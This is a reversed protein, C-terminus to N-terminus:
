IGLVGQIPQVPVPGRVAQGERGWGTGARIGERPPCQSGAAPSPVEGMGM